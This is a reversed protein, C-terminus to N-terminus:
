KLLYLCRTNPQVAADYYSSTACSKPIWTFTIASKPNKMWGIWFKHRPMFFFLVRGGYDKQGLRLQKVSAAIDLHAFSIFLRGGWFFSSTTIAGHVIHQIDHHRRAPHIEQAFLIEKHRMQPNWAISTTYKDNGWLAGNEHQRFVRKWSRVPM